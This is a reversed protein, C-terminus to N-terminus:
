QHESHFQEEIMAFQDGWMIEFEKIATDRDLRRNQNSKSQALQRLRNEGDRVMNNLKNRATAIRASVEWSRFLSTVHAQIFQASRERVNESLANNKIYEELIKQIKTKESAFFDKISDIDEEKTQEILLSAYERSLHERFKQRIYDRVKYYQEREFIEKFYNVQIM